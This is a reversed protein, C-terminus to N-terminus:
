GPGKQSVLALMEYRNVTGDPVVLVNSMNAVTMGVVGDVVGVTPLPNIVPQTAPMCAVYRGKSATPPM